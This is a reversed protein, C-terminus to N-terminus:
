DFMYRIDIYSSVAINSNSVFDPTCGASTKIYIIDNNQFYFYGDIVVYDSYIYNNYVINTDTNIYLSIFLGNANYGM